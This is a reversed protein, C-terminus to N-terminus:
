AKKRKLIGILAVTAWIANEIASPLAWHWVSNVVLFAGGLGNALLYYRSDSSLRGQVNLIYASICLITGTFGIIEIFISM